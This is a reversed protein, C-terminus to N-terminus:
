PASRDPAEPEIRGVDIGPFERQLFAEVRRMRDSMLTEPNGAAERLLTADIFQTALRDSVAPNDDLAELVAALVARGRSRHQAGRQLLLQSLVWLHPAAPDADTPRAFLSSVVSQTTETPSTILAHGSYPDEAGRRLLLSLFSRLLAAQQRRTARWLLSPDIRFDPTRAATGRMVSKLLSYDSAARTSSAVDYDMGFSRAWVWSELLGLHETLHFDRGLAALPLILAKYPVWNPNRMGTEALFRLAQDMAQTASEWEETVTLAPLGLLAPRRVDGVARLAISQLVPLGEDGLYLDLYDTERRARDWEDRLNWTSTYVRAVLLDFTSLRLGGKNIREFIRAVAEAPLDPELITSSFEYHNVTGLFAKYADTLMALAADRRESPLERVTRDRWEFFDAASTLSYLPM